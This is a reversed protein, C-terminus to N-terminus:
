AAAQAAAVVNSAQSVPLSKARTKIITISNVEYSETAATISLFVYRKSLASHSVTILITKQDINASSETIVLAGTTIVATVSNIPIDTLTVTTPSPSTTSNATNEKVTFTLVAAADVDELEVAFTIEDFGSMDAVASKTEATTDTVLNCGRQIVARETLLDAM